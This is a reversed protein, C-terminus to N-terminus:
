KIHRLKERAFLLAEDTINEGSIMRAIENIRGDKDLLKIESKNSTKQVLYHNDAFSPMHSQHSIAFIQYSKSLQSLIKAIGESESGSLNADIEDLILIGSAKTYEMNICLIALKLRNFEGSSLTSITSDKLTLELSDIGSIGLDKNKLRIYAKNLMLSTCYFDLRDLLLGVNENRYKSIEKALSNSTQLLNEVENQLAKKNFSINEYYELDNKKKKLYALSEEISGYKYILRGLSEIRNLISEIDDDNINLLREEEDKICSEIEGLIEEFIAKNKDISDLFSILVPFNDLTNKLSSIKELIKEKKSLNKKFDMLEEYEGIKPNVGEIQAIEYAALERLEIINKEDGKLKELEAFKAKFDKYNQKYSLLLASFNPNNKVIILDLLDLLNEEELESTSHSHIYKVYDGFIEKIRRKSTSQNNLFYKTKDKKIVSLILEDNTLIGADELYINATEFDGEILLANSDKIGFLALISEMLVSKGSGSVGSFVNFGSSPNIVVESFAPSDKILLRWIM